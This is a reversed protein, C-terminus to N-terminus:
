TAFLSTIYNMYLTFCPDNVQEQHSSGFKPIRKSIVFPVDQTCVMETRRATRLETLYGADAVLVMTSKEHFKTYNNKVFPQRALTLKTFISAPSPMRKYHCACHCGTVNQFHLVGVCITKVAHRLAGNATRSWSCVAPETAKFRTIVKLAAPRVTPTVNRVPFSNKPANAFNRFGVVVNTMDTRGDTRM